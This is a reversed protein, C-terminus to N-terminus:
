QRIIEVGTMAYEHSLIEQADRDMAMALQAMGRSSKFVYSPKGNLRRSNMRYILFSDKEDCKRKFDGLAEFNTGLPNNQSVIDARANHVRKIDVFARAVNEVQSWDITDTTMLQVMQDNVLKNPKVGPNQSVVKLLVQRNVKPLKAQCTHNGVHMVVLQEQRKDYELVKVAHCAVTIAPTGCTFCQFCSGHMQFQTRNPGNGNKLFPCENSNCVPAGNCRVGRRLGEFYKRTSTVWTKWPRGDKSSRMMDERTCSIVFKCLGDIDHPLQTVHQTDCEDWNHIDLEVNTHRRPKVFSILSSDVCSAEYSSVPSALPSSRPSHVNSAM